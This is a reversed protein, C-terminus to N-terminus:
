RHSDHDHDNEIYTAGGDLGMTRLFIDAPDEPLPTDHAHSAAAPPTPRPNTPGTYRLSRTIARLDAGTARLDHDTSQYLLLATFEPTRFVRAWASNVVELCIFEINRSLTKRRCIAIPKTRYIDLEAYEERFAALVARMVESPSPRHRMLNLSWFTTYPSTVSIQIEDPSAEEALEWEDPYEFAIHHQAYTQSM